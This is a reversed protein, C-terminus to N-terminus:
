APPALENLSKSSTVLNPLPRIWRVIPEAKSMKPPVPTLYSSSTANLRFIPWTVQSFATAFLRANKLNGHCTAKGVKFRRSRRAGPARSKDRKLTTIELSFHGKYCGKASELVHLIVARTLGHDKLM